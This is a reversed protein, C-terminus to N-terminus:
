ETDDETPITRFHLLREVSTMSSDTKDVTRVTAQVVSTLMLSYTLSIGAVVGSIQGKTSVLYLTVVFIIVVSMWDLRVALWRGAAWYTFYATTNADVAKKNLKIFKHEMKFARITHLGTLTEGFLNYVPTRTLGELRKVERSTKQFYLTVVVFVAFMPVYSICIWYSSIAAVVLSGVLVAVNQLAMQYRRFIDNHLNKSSRVCAEVLVLGRAFTLVCTVVIFALYWMGFKLNSFSPDVGDRVMNRAWHGQWWDVLTRVGQSAVYLLLLVFLLVFGNMGAEDFYAKYVEGAVKGKVRDEAQVLKAPESASGVKNRDPVADMALVAPHSADSLCDNSVSESESVEASAIQAVAAGTAVAVAAAHQLEDEVVGGLHEDIVDAEARALEKSIDGCVHRGGEMLKMEGLLAHLLSTKGAGVTGVIMVLEGPVIELNVGELCFGADLWNDDRDRDSDNNSNGGIGGAGALAANGDFPSQSAITVAAADAIAADNKTVTDQNARGTDVVVVGAPEVPTSSWQFHANRVSISGAPATDDLSDADASSDNRRNCKSSTNSTSSSTGGYVELEEGALYTDIRELAVKGQSLTAIARPFVNVAGRCVNVMAILTFADTVSIRGQILVYVGLTVASLLTPTLFLMTTNVVYSQLALALMYVFYSSFIVVLERRFTRALAVVIPSLAPKATRGTRKHARLPEYSFISATSLPNERASLPGEQAYKDLFNRRGTAPSLPQECPQTQQHEGDRSHGGGHAHSGRQADVSDHGRSEQKPTPPVAAYGFQDELTTNPPTPM